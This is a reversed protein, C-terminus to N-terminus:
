GNKKESRISIYILQYQNKGKNWSLIGGCLSITM